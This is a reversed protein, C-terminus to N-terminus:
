ATIYNAVRPYNLYHEHTQIKHTVDIDCYSIDGFSNMYKWEMSIMLVVSFVEFINYDLNHYKNAECM